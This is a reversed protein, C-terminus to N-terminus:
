VGCYDILVANSSVVRERPPPGESWARMGAHARFWAFAVCDKVVSGYLERAFRAQYVRQVSDVDVRELVVRLVINTVESSCTVSADAFVQYHLFGITRPASVSVNCGLGPGPAASAPAAGAAGATLGAVVAAVLAAARVRLQHRM